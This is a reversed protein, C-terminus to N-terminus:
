DGEGSEPEPTKGTAARVLDALGPDSTMQDKLLKRLDALDTPPLGQLHATAEEVKADLYGHVDIEGAKFRALPTAPAAAATQDVSAAAGKAEPREVHFAKDTGKPGTAKEPAEPLPPAGGKGIRDIAM